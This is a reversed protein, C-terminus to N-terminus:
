LSNSFYKYGQVLPPKDIFPLVKYVPTRPAACGQCVVLNVVDIGVSCHVVDPIFKCVARGGVSACSDLNCGCTRLGEQAISCNCHMRIILSVLSNYALLELKRQCVPNDRDDGVGIYVPFESCTHNLDGRGVVRVVPFYSLPVVKFYDVDQIRVAGQVVVARLFVTAHGTSCCSFQYILIQLILTKELSLLLQNVRYSM